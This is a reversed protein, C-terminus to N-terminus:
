RSGDWEAGLGHQYTLSLLARLSIPYGKTPNDGDLGGDLPPRDQQSVVEAIVATPVMSIASGVCFAWYTAQTVHIGSPKYDAAGRPLQAVEIFVNGTEVYRRDAKVEIRSESLGLANMVLREHAEGVALDIDWEPRYTM